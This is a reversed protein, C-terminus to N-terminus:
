ARAIVVARRQTERGYLAQEPASLRSVGQVGRARGKNTRCTRCVGYVPLTGDPRVDDPMAERKPIAASCELCKM